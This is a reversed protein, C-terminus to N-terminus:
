FGKNLFQIFLIAKFGIIDEVLLGDLSDILYGGM